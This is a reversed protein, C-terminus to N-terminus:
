DELCLIRRVTNKPVRLISGSKSMISVSDDDVLKIVYVESDYVVDSDVNFYYREDLEELGPFYGNGLRQEEDKYTFLPLGSQPLVENKIKEFKEEDDFMSNIGNKSCLNEIKKRKGSFVNEWFLRDERKPYIKSRILAQIVEKQLCDIYLSIPIHRTKM